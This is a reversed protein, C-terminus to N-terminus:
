TGPSNAHSKDQSEEEWGQPLDPQDPRFIDSSKIWFQIRFQLIQLLQWQMRRLQWLWSWCSVWARNLFIFLICAFFGTFGQRYSLAERSKQRDEMLLGNVLKTQCHSSHIILSIFDFMLFHHWSILFLIIITTVCSSLWYELLPPWLRLTWIIQARICNGKNLMWQFSARWVLRHDRGGWSAIDSRLLRFTATM